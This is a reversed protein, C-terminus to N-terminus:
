EASYSFNTVNKPRICIFQLYNVYTWVCQVIGKRRATTFFQWVLCKTIQLRTSHIIPFIIFMLLVHCHNVVSQQCQAFYIILSIGYLM